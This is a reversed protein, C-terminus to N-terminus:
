FGQSRKITNLITTHHTGFKRALARAGNERCRPKYLEAIELAEKETFRTVNEPPTLLGNKVAHKMNESATAWELNELHNNCKDGDLHNVQPKNDPNPIFTIAVLRHVKLTKGAGRGNPKINIIEYGNRHVSTNLINGSTNNKVKGCTSISYNPYDDILKFTYM